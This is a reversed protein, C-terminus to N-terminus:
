DKKEREAGGLRSPIALVDIIASVDDHHVKTPGKPGGTGIESIPIGAEIGFGVVDSEISSKCAVKWIPFVLFGVWIGVLLICKSRARDPSKPTAVVNAGRNTKDVDSWVQEDFVIVTAFTTATCGACM